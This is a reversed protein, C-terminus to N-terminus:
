EGCEMMAIVAKLKKVVKDDGPNVMTQLRIVRSVIEVCRTLQWDSGDEFAHDYNEHYSM